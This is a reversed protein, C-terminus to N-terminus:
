FIVTQHCSITAQLDQETALAEWRSVETQNALKGFLDLEYSVGVSTSLGRDSGDGSRLDYNHGTSVSSSTRIGQKNEALGAQLRAQKLTIGAVSLDSNKALVQDVLQNLQADNFLTWWQDTLNVNKNKQADHQFQQPVQVTPANYPTKVVASCGALSGTLLLALGLKTFQFSM